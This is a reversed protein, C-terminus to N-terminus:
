FNTQHVTQSIFNINPKTIPIKCFYCRMKPKEMGRRKGMGKIRELHFKIKIELFTRSKTMLFHVILSSIHFMKCSNEASITKLLTAFYELLLGIIFLKWPLAYM